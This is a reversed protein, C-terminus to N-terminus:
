NCGSFNDLFYMKHGVVVDLVVDIFPILFPNTTKAVNLKMYDM